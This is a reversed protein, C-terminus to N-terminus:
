PLQYLHVAYGEFRDRLKGDAVTLTRGEYLVPIPASGSTGLDFSVEVPQPARNAALLLKRGGAEKVTLSIPADAPSFSPPTNTGGMLVPALERLEGALKKLEEWHGERPALFLGGQV